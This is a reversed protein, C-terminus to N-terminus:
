RVIVLAQTYHKDAHDVVLRYSGAAVTHLDMQLQAASCNWESIFNGLVDMLRVRSERNDSFPLHLTAAENAPNPLVVLQSNEEWSISATTHGYGVVLM